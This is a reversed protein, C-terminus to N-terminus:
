LVATFHFLQHRVLGACAAFSFFCTLTLQPLSSSHARQELITHSQERIKLCDTGLTETFSRHELLQKSSHQDQLTHFALSPM